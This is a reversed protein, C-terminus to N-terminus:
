FMWSDVEPSHGQQYDAGMPIFVRSYRWSVSKQFKSEDENKALELGQLFRKEYDQALVPNFYPDKEDKRWRLADAIAGHIFITPNIFWPPRDNPNVLAPWQRYYLCSFQRRTASAPWIEYQMNGQENPGLDVLQILAGTGTSTRRADLQNVETVSVHLRIPQGTTEDKMALIDKYDSGITIYMKVLRYAEDTKAAGGWSDTLELSTASIVNRVTFIPDTIAIRFQLGVLSSQTLTAGATHTYAFKAIFSDAKVEVVSVAEATGAADVYLVSDETIGTMALPTIEVYGIDDVADPITTNVINNIPWATATGTVIRSGPAVSVTGTTHADPVSLVKPTILDSWYTRAGLAQRIRDNIWDRADLSSCGPRFNTVRGIM